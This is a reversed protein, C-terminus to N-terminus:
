RPGPAGNTEEVPELCREIAALLDVVDFPKEVIECGYKELLARNKEVLDRSATCVLVPIHSTQPSEELEVLIELGDVGQLRLDIIILDASALVVEEYSTSFDEIFSCEFGEPGLISQCLRRFSPDDDIICIRIAM